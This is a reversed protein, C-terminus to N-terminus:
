KLIVPSVLLVVSPESEQHILTTEDTWLDSVGRPQSPARARPEAGQAKLRPTVVFRM